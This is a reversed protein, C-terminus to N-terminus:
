LQLPLFNPVPQFTSVGSFEWTSYEANRDVCVMGAKAVARESAINGTKAQGFSPLHLKDFLAVLMEAGYGRGRHEPAITYSIYFRNGQLEARATGIPTGHREAIFVYSFPDSLTKDLWSFHEAPTVENSSFSNALTLSDNRWTRLISADRLTAPRLSINM